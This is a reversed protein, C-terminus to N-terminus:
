WHLVEDKILEAQTRIVGRLLYLDREDREMRTDGYQGSDVLSHCAFCGWASLPDPAKLGMGSIGQMRVHCAVTTAPDGCCVPTRILCPKGAAYRRLDVLHRTM